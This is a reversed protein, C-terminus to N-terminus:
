FTHTQIHIDSMSMKTRGELSQCGGWCTYTYCRDLLILQHAEAWWLGLTPWPVSTKKKQHSITTSHIEFTLTLTLKKSNECHQGQTQNMVVAVFANHWVHQMHSPFSQAVNPSRSSIWSNFPAEYPPKFIVNLGSNLLSTICVKVSFVFSISVYLM